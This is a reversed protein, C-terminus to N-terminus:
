LYGLFVDTYAHITPSKEKTAGHMCICIAVGNYTLELSVVTECSNSLFKNWWMINRFYIITYSADLLYAYSSVIHLSTRHLHVCM